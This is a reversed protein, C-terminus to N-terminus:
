PLGVLLRYYGVLTPAAELLVPTPFVQEDRIGAEALISQADVPVYEALQKKLEVPDVRRLADTLADILWQKRAAVLLQHFGVQRTPDPPQVAPAARPAGKGKGSSAAM